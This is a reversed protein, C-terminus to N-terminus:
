ARARNWGGRPMIQGDVGLPREENVWEERGNAVGMIKIYDVGCYNAAIIYTKRIAEEQNEAMVCVSFDKNKNFNPEM